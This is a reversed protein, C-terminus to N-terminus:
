TLHWDYVYAQREADFRYGLLVTEVQLPGSGREWLYGGAKKLAEVFFVQDPSDSFARREGCLPGGIFSIEM